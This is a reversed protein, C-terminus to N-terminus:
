RLGEQQAPKKISGIANTFRYKITALRVPERHRIYISLHELADRMASM